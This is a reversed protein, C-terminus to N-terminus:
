KGDSTGQQAIRKQLRRAEGAWRRNRRRILGPAYHYDELGKELVRLAQEADGAELTQEALICQHRLTPSNRVLDKCTKVAGPLDGSEVRAIRLLYWARYNSWQRDRAIVKELLPVALEPHELETHCTALLYLTQCHDPEQPLTAELHPIAEAHDGQAILREALLLRNALTPSQAVQYRIAELSPRHQFPWFNLGHWEGFDHIKVVFFYIWSGLPQFILIIWLWFLEAGRRYCDVLMWITFAGQLLFLLPMESFFPLFYM